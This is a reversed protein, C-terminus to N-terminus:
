DTQDSQYGFKLRKPKGLVWMETQKTQGIVMISDTQDPFYGFKLTNPMPLVCIEALQTQSIDVNPRNPRM